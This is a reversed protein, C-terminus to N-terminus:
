IKPSRRWQPPASCGRCAPRSNPSVKTRSARRYQLPLPRRHRSIPWSRRLAARLWRRSHMSM